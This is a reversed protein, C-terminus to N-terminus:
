GEPKLRGGRTGKVVDALRKPRGVKQQLGAAEASHHEVESGNRGFDNRADRKRGPKAKTGSRIVRAGTENQQGLMGARLGTCLHDKIQLGTM